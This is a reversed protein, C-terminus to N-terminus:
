LRSEMLRQLARPVIHVPNLAPVFDNNMHTGDLLREAIDAMTSFGAYYDATTIAHLLAEFREIARHNPEVGSLDRKWRIFSFSHLFLVIYDVKGRILKPIIETMEANSCANIDLKSLKQYGLGRALWYCTVPIELINGIHFPRNIFRNGMESSLGCNAHFAFYSSDVRFGSQELATITDLNATYAGARFAIPAKGIWDEILRKGETVIEIQERKSFDCLRGSGSGPLWSTHAHLQVDHGSRHIERCLDRVATKGYHHHMYVDVFFTAKARHKDCIDM